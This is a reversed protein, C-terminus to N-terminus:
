ERACDACIGQILVEVVTFGDPIGAPAENCDVDWVRHCRRCISHQHASTDPDFHARSELGDIRRVVGLEELTQLTNYVTAPSVYGLKAQVQAIVAEATPHTRNGALIELVSRRQATMRAGAERLRASAVEPDLMTGYVDSRKTM